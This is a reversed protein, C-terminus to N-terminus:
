AIRHSKCLKGLHLTNTASILASKKHKNCAYSMAVVLLFSPAWFLNFAFNAYFVFLMLWPNHKTHITYFTVILILMIAGREVLIAIWGAVVGQEFVTITIGLGNGFLFTSWSGNEFFFDLIRILNDLRAIASTQEFYNLGILTIIFLTSLSLFVFVKISIKLKKEGFVQKALLYIGFFLFFTTSLTIIGAIFNLQIFRKQKKSDDIWDRAALINLGLFVGLLGGEYIFGTVQVFDFGFLTKPSLNGILPNSLYYYSGESLNMPSFSITKTAYGVVALIAMVCLFYWLLVWIKILVNLVKSNGCLMGITLVLFIFKNFSSILKLYTDIDLLLICSFILFIPFLWIIDALYRYRLNIMVLLILVFGEIVIRVASPMYTETIFPNYNLVYVLLMCSVFMCLSLAKTKHSQIDTIKM